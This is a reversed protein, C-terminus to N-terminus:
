GESEKPEKKPSGAVKFLQPLEIGLLDCAEKMKTRSEAYAATNRIELGSSEVEEAAAESLQRVAALLEIAKEYQKVSLSRPKM